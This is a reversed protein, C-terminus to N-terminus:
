RANGVDAVTAAPRVDSSKLRWDTRNSERLGTFTESRVLQLGLRDNCSASAGWYPCHDFTYCSTENALCNKYEYLFSHWCEIGQCMVCSPQAIVSTSILVLIALVVIRATRKM